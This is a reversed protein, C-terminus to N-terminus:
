GADVFTRIIRKKMRIDAAPDNWVAEVEEALRAFEDAQVEEDSESQQQHRSIRSEVEAVRELALNWRRELEATVLRNEPDAADFQRQARAAEYRASELDRELARLVEDRQESQQQHAFVAAEIAAPALVRFIQETVARDIPVGGFSICKAEGNDLYGRHCCYRPADHNTGTYSVVLKQACRRCHLLGGLLASGKRAAGKGQHLNNSAIMEQLREFDDWADIVDVQEWGLNHLRQQMAYQLKRSEENHQVQFSSSQRVYLIAKRERHQSQIKDSM